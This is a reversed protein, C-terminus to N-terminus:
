IQLAQFISIIMDFWVTFGLDTKGLNRTIGDKWVDNLLLGDERAL